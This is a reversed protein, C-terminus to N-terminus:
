EQLPGYYVVVKCIFQHCVVQSSSRDLTAQFFVVKREETVSPFVDGKSLSVGRLRPDVGASESGRSHNPRPWRALYFNAM